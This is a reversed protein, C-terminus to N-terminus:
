LLFLHYTCLRTVIKKGNNANLYHPDVLFCSFQGNEVEALFLKLFYYQSIININMQLDTLRQLKIQQQFMRLKPM